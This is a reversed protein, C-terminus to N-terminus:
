QKGANLRHGLYEYQREYTIRENHQEENHWTAAHQHDSFSKDTYRGYGYISVPAFYDSSFVTLGGTQQTRRNLKVGHRVLIPTQLLSSATVNLSGDERVFDLNEYVSMMEQLVPTKERCGFGQGLNIKNNNNGEFGCFFDYYLLEDWSKLMEVDTDLYIGGYNYLIDLRAYDPVFGWKGAEYAQRMYKIKMVDYNDENWLMIKYDPCYKKWSDINKQYKDPIKNKGVWFYHIIRPIVPMEHRNLQPQRSESLFLGLVYCEKGNLFNIKDLQELIERAFKLSTIVFVAGCMNETLKGIDIVPIKLGNADVQEEKSFNDVLCKIRLADPYMQLFEHFKMGGCFCIIEKDRIVNDFEDLTCNVLRVM